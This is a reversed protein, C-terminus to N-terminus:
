DDIVYEVPDTSALRYDHWGGYARNLVAAPTTPGLVHAQEDGDGDPLLAVRIRTVPKGDDYHLPWADVDVQHGDAPGGRLAARTSRM